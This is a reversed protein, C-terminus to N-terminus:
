AAANLIDIHPEFARKEVVLTAKVARAAYLLSALNAIHFQRRSINTNFNYAQHRGRYMIDAPLCIIRCTIHGNLPWRSGDAQTSDDRTTAESIRLTM